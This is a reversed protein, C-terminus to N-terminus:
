SSKPSNPLNPIHSKPSRRDDYRKSKIYPQFIQDAMNEEKIESNM